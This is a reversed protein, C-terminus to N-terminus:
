WEPTEEWGSFRDQVIRYGTPREADAVVRLNTLPRLKAMLEEYPLTHFPPKSLDPMPWLRITRDSGGSAIWRCDPSIALSRISGEHGYLLHPEEGSALGVRLLGAGDGSVVIKGAPDLTVMGVSSGHSRLERADNGRLDSQIIVGGFVEERDGSELRLRVMQKRDASLAASEGPAATLSEAHGTRLDWSQIGGRGASLLHDTDEFWLNAVGGEVGDGAGAVPGLIRAEGSELNWVRIVKEEKPGFHTSAAALRGDPSFAVPLPPAAASFGTLVRPEPGDLPILLVRGDMAPVLLRRRRWDAALSPSGGLRDRLLVRSEGGNPVLPWLRVIGDGSVSVLARGDPTFLLSDFRREEGRLIRPRSRSMPWLAIQNTAATAMWRGSPDFEVANLFPLDGGLILPESGPATLDWIRIETRAEIRGFAALRTAARDFGVRTMGSGDLARVLIGKGDRLSWLRIEGAHDLAALLDGEPSFALWALDSEHEAILRPPDSWTQVSRLYIAPGRAYAMSKGGPDLDAVQIAEM